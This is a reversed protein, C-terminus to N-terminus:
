ASSLKTRASAKGCQLDVSISRVVTDTTLQHLSQGVWLNEAAGAGDTVLTAGAIVSENAPITTGAAVALVFPHVGEFQVWGYDNADQDAMVVGSVEATEDNAASDEFVWPRIIVFDDNAAPTVSFADESHITILTATNAIIEAHEGEPAAGAAGADDLCYLIGGVHADATLGATTISTTTGATINNVATNAVFSSLEDAVMANDFRGYMFRRRGFLRHTDEYVSGRAVLPETSSSNLNAGPILAPGSASRILKGALMTM